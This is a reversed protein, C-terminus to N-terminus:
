MFKMRLSLFQLNVKKTYLFFLESTVENTLLIMTHIRWNEKDM